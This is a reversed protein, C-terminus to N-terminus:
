KKSTKTKSDSSKVENVKTTAGKVDTLKIEKGKIDESQVDKNKADVDKDIVDSNNDVPDSDSDPTEVIRKKFLYKPLLIKAKLLFYLTSDVKIEENSEPLSKFSTKIEELSYNSFVYHWRRLGILLRLYSPYANSRFYLVLLDEFYVVFEKLINQIDKAKFPKLIIGIQDFLNANKNVKKDSNYQSLLYSLEFFTAHSTNLPAKWEQRIVAHPINTRIKFGDNTLLYDDLATIGKEFNEQFATNISMTQVIEIKNFFQIHQKRVEEINIGTPERLQTFRFIEPM